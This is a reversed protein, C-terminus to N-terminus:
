SVRQDSIQPTNYNDEYNVNYQDFCFSKFYNDKYNVQFQFTYINGSSAVTKATNMPFYFGFSGNFYYDFRKPYNLILKNPKIIQNVGQAKSCFLSTTLLSLIEIKKM